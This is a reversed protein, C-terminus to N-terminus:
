GRGRKYSTRSIFTNFPDRGGRGTLWFVRKYTVRTNEDQDSSRMGCKIGQRLILQDCYENWLVLINHGFRQM